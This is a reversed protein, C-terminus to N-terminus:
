HSDLSVCLASLHLSFVRRLRIHILLCAHLLCIFLFCVDSDSSFWSVRMFCVSSSFVCTQTQHSDLSVCSASLHLSFVRRLRIHILLCAYLLCIFLFCVDTDSTFWSVRMFCVSSSFVCTQTQHSDLSVCLASLHLSFVRRHRIHILLCAHLLCIFLFCVDTDSSFWSVRMFCVSSSFVCTQTQHSDLSVCLASLHLSFVRRHRILILLCAYLLCIFLFCVDTDSSFWSVRMFCVSSSFVCTQTQHSDLSVCSASLHLSFVRRHRILILLCAYLLCIFLFCVDSDSTFWSVRMFCVSSSFVCTQTQHSDLSVCLASLLHM